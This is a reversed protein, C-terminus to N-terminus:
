VHARGIEEAGLEKYKEIAKQLTEKVEENIGEGFFEKPIGIKLGKVDNKLAKTYDKKPMDESTTDKEDHGAILNLLM